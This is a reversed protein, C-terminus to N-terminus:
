AGTASQNTSYASYRGGTYQARVRYTCTAGTACTADTYTTQDAGRLALVTWGTSSQRDVEYGGITGITSSVVAPTWSLDAGPPTTASGAILSPRDLTVIATSVGGITGAADIYGVDFACTNGIGCMYSTTGTGNVVDATVDTETWNPDSFSTSDWIVSSHPNCGTASSCIFLEYHGPNVGTDTTAAWSLDIKDGVAPDPNATFLTPSAPHAFNVASANGKANSVWIEYVCRGNPPCTTVLSTSTGAPAIQVWAKSSNKCSSGTATSCRWPTYLVPLGGSNNTVSWSVHQTAKGTSLDVASTSVAVGPVPAPAHFAALRIASWSGGGDANVAQVEYSCGSASNLAACDAQTTATFTNTTASYTIAGPFATPPGFSSGSNVQYKWASGGSLLALGGDSSPAHWALTAVHPTPSVFTAASLTPAPPTSLTTWNSGTIGNAAEMRFACASNCPVSVSRMTATIPTTGAVWNPVTNPPYQPAYQYAYSKIGVGGNTAPAAWSLQMFGATGPSVFFNLPVSPASWLTTPSANSWASAGDVNVARVKYACGHGTSAPANCVAPSTGSPHAAAAGSVLTAPASWVSSGDINFEYQYQTIPSSTAPASWNVSMRGAVPGASVSPAAPQGPPLAFAPPAGVVLAVSGLAFSGVAFLGWRRRM